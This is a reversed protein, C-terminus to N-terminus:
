CQDCFNLKKVSLSVVPNEIEIRDRIIRTLDVFAYGNPSIPYLFTGITEQNNNDTSDYVVLQCRFNDENDNTSSLIYVTQNYGPTFLQPTDNVTIAM